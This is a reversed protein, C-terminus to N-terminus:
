QHDRNCEEDGEDRENFEEVGSNRNTKKKIIKTYINGSKMTDGEQSKKYSILTKKM